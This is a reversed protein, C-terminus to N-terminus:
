IRNQGIPEARKVDLTRGKAMAQSLMSEVTRCQAESTIATQADVIKGNSVVFVYLTQTVGSVQYVTHAQQAFALQESSGSAVFARMITALRYFSEEVLDPTGKYITRQRCGQLVGTASALTLLEAYHKQQKTEATEPPSPPASKAPVPSSPPTPNCSTGLLLVGTLVVVAILGQLYYLPRM